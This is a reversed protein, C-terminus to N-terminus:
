TSLAERIFALLERMQFPKRIFVRAKPSNAIDGVMERSYASMLLLKTNPRLRGTEMAVGRSPEGPITMDLVILDIDNKLDRILEVAATGDGAEVVHFGEKHLMKAISIRLPEEDEVLLVNGTIDKKLYSQQDVALTGPTSRPVSQDAIPWLVRFTTGQGLLSTLEISGKHAHVVGQVLALGLGRGAM